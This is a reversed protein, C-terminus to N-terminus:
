CEMASAVGTSASTVTNVKNGLSLTMTQRPGLARVAGLAGSFWLVVEFVSKRGVKM